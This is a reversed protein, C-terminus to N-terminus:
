KKLDYGLEKVKQKLWKEWRPKMAETLCEVILDDVEGYAAVSTVQRHLEDPLYITRSKTGPPRQKPM